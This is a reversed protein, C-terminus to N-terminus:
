LVKSYLIRILQLVNSSTWYLVMGSPFTFFLIFFLFSMLYLQNKKKNELDINMNKDSYLYASIMSILMMLLPLLNFSSGFYPISFPIDLWQDPKSLNDIFLFPQGLLHISEGLVDFVAIFIPIQILFGFLSKIPYFPSISKDKYLKMIRSNAEEGSYSSKIEDIQPQLASQIINVDDQWKEAVRNLPYIIVKLVFALLLISLGANGSFNLLLFFIWEIFFCLQRLWDWLAAYMLQRLEAESGVFQKTNLPGFYLIFHHLGDEATSTLKLGLESEIIRNATAEHNEPSILFTWFRTRAGIWSSKQVIVQSLATINESGQDSLSVLWSGNYISGMGYIDEEILLKDPDIEVQIDKESQIMLEVFGNKPNNQFVVESIGDEYDSRPYTIEFKDGVKRSKMEYDNHPIGNSDLIKLFINSEINLESSSKNKSSCDPYCTMWRQISPKNPDFTIQGFHNQDLPQELGLAQQSFIFILLCIRIM